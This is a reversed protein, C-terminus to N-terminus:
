SNGEEDEVVEVLDIVNDAAPPAAASEESKKGRAKAPTAARPEIKRAAPPAGAPPNLCEFLAKHLQDRQVPPKL